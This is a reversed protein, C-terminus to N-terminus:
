QVPALEGLRFALVREVAKAAANRGEGVLGTYAHRMRNMFAFVAPLGADVSFGAGLIYVDRDNAIM